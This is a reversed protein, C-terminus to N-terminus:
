EKEPIEKAFGCKGCVAKPVKGQKEVLPDNCEPCKEGTPKSWSMFECDPAGSCGFYRRGKKTKKILVKGDCLPCGVGAEEFYPLANRCEPFGPCALFKGFRGLKIVMNRGCKECLTDTVEDPVDIHGIREEALKLKEELPPYFRRLLEKWEAGGDEVRDLEDEMKATFDIDVINEFNDAMINNVVEGLETSFFTKSDRIVYGRTVLTSITASYTSPRGIGLEEMTRVLSADTYRPPAQTFHQEADIDLLKLEQDDSINPMRSEDSEDNKGYIKLYGDFKLRSGGARFVYKDATIKASLTDYVAATMQSAVFREWILKYLRYQDRTLSGQVSDPTLATHTPRIAEHAEQARARTKYEAKTDLAYDAGLNETIFGRVDTFAEDSIRTSDTRIYSVLGITGQGKIDVGEYLQQAVLMTKHTAFGLLRSGEQQLTSTTFPALPKRQKQGRKVEAIKFEAHEIAKKVTDAEEKNRLKLKGESDGSLHATLKEKGASLNVDLTWYEEPIFSEIDKERDCIMKLAVSQVRGASLGKKIKRWLLPSIRYGVMRDLARRAQQADVLNMNIERAEKISRKVANKTIENFTIRRAKKADLNLSHMLHWSIAEGERDPDTALYVKDAAKVEKRLKSLVEGKGRITIYKPEFDNEIDIGLESKPLDRVHGVSAEIKYASGLFKKLTRAKAPSEVIVLNKAM